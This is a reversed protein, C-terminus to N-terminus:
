NVSILPSEIEYVKTLSISEFKEEIPVFRAAYLWWIPGNTIDGCHCSSGTPWQVGIDVMWIGCTCRRCSLAILEDGKKFPFEYPDNRSDDICVVRQGPYFPPFNIDKM